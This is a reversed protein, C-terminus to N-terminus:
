NGFIKDWIRGFIGEKNIGSELDTTSSEGGGFWHHFFNSIRSFLGQDKNVPLNDVSHPFNYVIKDAVIANTSIDIEGLVEVEMAKTFDSWSGDTSTGNQLITTDDKLVTYTTTAQGHQSHVEITLQGSFVYTIFGTVGQIKPSGMDGREQLSDTDNTHSESEAM